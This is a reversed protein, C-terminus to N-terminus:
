GFPMRKFPAVLQIAEPPIGRKPIARVDGGDDAGRYAAVNVTLWHQVTMATAWKAEDPVSPFGWDGTVTVERNRFLVRGTAVSLPRLRVAMFTGDRAPRPWLRYEDAALTVGAGVDSDVVVSTVTRVDYPALSLFEGEWPYEFVRAVATSTPAFERECWKMIAKSAPVILATILADQATDASKKQMLSRVDALACLEGAM